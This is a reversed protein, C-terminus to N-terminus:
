DKQTASAIPVGEEENWYIGSPLPTVNHRYTIRITFMLDNSRSKIFGYCQSSAGKGKRLVLCLNTIPSRSSAMRSFSDGSTRPPALTPSPAFDVKKHRIPLSSAWKLRGSPSKPGPPPSTQKLASKRKQRESVDWKQSKEGKTGLVIDFYLSKAIEEEADGPLMVPKRPAMVLGLDHLGVCGCAMVVQIASFIGTSLRRILAVEKTQSRSRRTPELDSNQRALASLM